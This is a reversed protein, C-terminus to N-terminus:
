DLGSANTSQQVAIADSSSEAEIRAGCSVRMDMKWTAVLIIQKLLSIMNNGETFDELPKGNYKSYFDFAKCPGIEDAVDWRM